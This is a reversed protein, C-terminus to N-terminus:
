LENGGNLDKILTSRNYLQHRRETGTLYNDRFLCSTSNIDGNYCSISIELCAIHEIITPTILATLAKTVCM